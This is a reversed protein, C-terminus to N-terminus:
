AEPGPEVEEAECVDIDFGDDLMQQYTVQVDDFAVQEGRIRRALWVLASLSDIDPDSALERMLRMWSLGTAQRLGRALPATMDGLRVEFTEGDLTVRVGTDLDDARQKEDAPTVKRALSPRNSM